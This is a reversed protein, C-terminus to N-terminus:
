PVHRRAEMRGRRHVRLVELAAMRIAVVLENGNHSLTPGDDGQRIRMYEYLRADIPIGRWAGHLRSIVDSLTEDTLSEDDVGDLAFLCGYSGHRKMAFVTDSVFRTLPVISRVPKAKAFWRQM